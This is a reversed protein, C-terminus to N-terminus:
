ASNFYNATLDIGLDNGLKEMGIEDVLSALDKLTQAASDLDSVSCDHTGVNLQNMLPIQRVINKIFYKGKRIEEGAKYNGLTSFMDAMSDIVNGLASIGRVASDTNPYCFNQFERSQTKLQSLFAVLGSLINGSKHFLDRSEKTTAVENDYSFEHMIVALSRLSAFGNETSCAPFDSGTSNIEVIPKLSRLIEAVQRVVEAEGIKGNLSKVHNNISQLDSETVTLMQSAERVVNIAEDINQLCINDMSFVKDITAAAAPDKSMTELSSIVTKPDFSGSSGSPFPFASFLPLFGLVILLKM